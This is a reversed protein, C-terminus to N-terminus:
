PPATRVLGPSGTLTRATPTRAARAESPRRMSSAVLGGVFGISVALALRIATRSTPAGLWAAVEAAVIMGLAMVLGDLLRRVLRSEIRSWRSDQVLWAAISGTALATFLWPWSRGVAQIAKLLDGDAIVWNFFFQIPAGLIMAVAGSGLVFGIPTRGRFDENAFGWRGKSLMAAGVAVVQITAIMLIRLFMDGATASNLTPLWFLLFFGVYLVFAWGLLLSTPHLGPELALRLGLEELRQRRGRATAARALVGRAIYLNLNRHFFAIDERLEELLDSVIGTITEGATPLPLADAKSGDPNLQCWLDGLRDVTKLVRVVKLSLQDFRRRLVDFENNNGEVFPRYREDDEWARVQHFLAATKFWLRQAPEAAPLWNEDPDYGRRRLVSKVEAEVGEPLILDAEYLDEAFQFAEQPAGIERRLQRRLWQDAWSVPPINLVVLMLGLALWIPSVRGLLAFVLLSYGLMPAAVYLILGFYYQNATTYSRVSYPKDFRVRAFALVIVLGMLFLDLPWGREPM